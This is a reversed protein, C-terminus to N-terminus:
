SMRRSPSSASLGYPSETVSWRQVRPCHWRQLREKKTLKLQGRKVANLLREKSVSMVAPKELLYARCNFMYKPTVRYM